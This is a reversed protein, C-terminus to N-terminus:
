IGAPKWPWDGGIMEVTERKEKKKEESGCRWMILRRSRAHVCRANSAVKGDVNKRSARRNTMRRAVDVPKRSTM